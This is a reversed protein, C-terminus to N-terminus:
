LNPVYGAEEMIRVEDKDKYAVEMKLIKTSAFTIQHVLIFHFSKPVFFM